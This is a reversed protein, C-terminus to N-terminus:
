KSDELIFENFFERVIESLPKGLRDAKEKAKDLLDQPLRFRFYGDQKM